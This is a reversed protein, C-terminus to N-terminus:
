TMGALVDNRDALHTASLVTNRNNSPATTSIVQAYQIAKTITALVSNFMTNNWM